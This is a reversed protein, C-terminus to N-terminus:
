NKLYRHKRLKAAEVIHHYRIPLDHFLASMPDNIGKSYDIWKHIILFDSLCFQRLSKQSIAKHSKTIQEDFVREIEVWDAPYQMINQEERGIEGYEPFAIAYESCGRKVKSKLNKHIKRM